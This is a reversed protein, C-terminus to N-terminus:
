YFCDHLEGLIAHKGYIPSLIISRVQERYNIVVQFERRASANKSDKKLLTTLDHFSEDYKELM